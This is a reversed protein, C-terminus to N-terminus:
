CCLLGTQWRSSCRDYTESVQDRKCILETMYYASDKKGIGRLKKWVKNRRVHDRSFTGAMRELRDYQGDATNICHLRHYLVQEGIFSGTHDIRLFVADM